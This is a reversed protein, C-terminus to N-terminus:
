ASIPGSIAGIDAYIIPYGYTAVESIPLKKVSIPSFCSIPASKVGIDAYIIPYGYTAVVSIPNKASMPESIYWINCFLILPM